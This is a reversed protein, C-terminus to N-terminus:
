RMGCRITEDDDDRLAGYDEVPEQLRKRKRGVHADNNLTHSHTDPTGPTSHTQSYAHAHLQLEAKYRSRILNPKDLGPCATPDCEHQVIQYKRQGHLGWPAWRIDTGWCV